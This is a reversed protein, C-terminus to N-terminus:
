ETNRSCVPRWHDAMWLQLQGQRLENGEVLRIRRRRIDNATRDLSNTSHTQSMTENLPLFDPPIRTFVIKRDPLGRARLTGKVKITLGPGVYVKVGPEIHLLADSAIVLDNDQIIYPSASLKWRVSGFINSDVPTATLATLLHRSLVACFLIWM